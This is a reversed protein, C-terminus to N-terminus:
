TNEEEVPIENENEEEIDDEIGIIDTSLPVGPFKTAWVTELKHWAEQFEPKVAVTCKKDGIDNWDLVYATDSEIVYGVFVDVHNPTYRYFKGGNGSPSKRLNILPHGYKPWKMVKVQIRLGMGLNLDRMVFVDFRSATDLVPVLPFWKANILRTQTIIEGIYGKYLTSVIPRKNVPIGPFQKDEVSPPPSIKKYTRGTEERVKRMVTVVESLPISPLNKFWYHLTGKSINKEKAIHPISWKHKTRLVICEDRLAHLGSAQGKAALAKTARMASQRYIDAKEEKTLPFDHLWNNVTKENVNTIQSIQKVSFRKNVRLEICETKLEAWSKAPNNKFVESKSEIEM